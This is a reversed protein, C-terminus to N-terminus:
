KLKTITILGGSNQKVVSTWFDRDGTMDGFASAKNDVLWDILDDETAM